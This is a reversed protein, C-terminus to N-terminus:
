EVACGCVRRDNDIGGVELGNNRSSCRRPRDRHGGVTACQGAVLHKNHMRVLSRRLAVSGTTGHQISEWGLRLSRAQSPAGGPEYHPWDSIRRRVPYAWADCKEPFRLDKSESRESLIALGAAEALHALGEAIRAPTLELQHRADRELEGWVPGVAAPLNGRCTRRSKLDM